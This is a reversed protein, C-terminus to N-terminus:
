AAATVAAATLLGDPTLNPGALADVIRGRSFVLARDCLAAVEVFDTSVLLVGLRGETANFLLRYIEGKAGIDVGATPDELILLRGKLHMWRGLVVKQQNGGSLSEILQRPDNPRLQIYRALKEAEREEERHRLRNFWRGGLAAKNLFFNETVSFGHVVSEGTRDGSAFRVGQAIADAAGSLRVPVGELRVVGADLPVLGFLARAFAEQGAGRLGTLGLIEGPMVELDIPGVGPIAAGAVELLPPGAFSAKERLVPKASKGIILRVLEEPTTDAVNQEGVMHGDRLVAVRDAVSFIEELRHSVYIIGIGISRLPRIAEFLRNVEDAPLSATPEDMVIILADTTLARAIAVLSREIRGLQNVRTDPDIDIGLKALAASAFQRSKAWSIPGHVMGRRRPFGRTLCVNEAVTMWDILGLDQHIFAIPLSTVTRSVDQGEFLIQGKDLSHVGALTKILTSKGAGNEGLLALVEGHRLRVSVDSLAQNGGFSKSIGRMELLPPLSKVDAAAFANM